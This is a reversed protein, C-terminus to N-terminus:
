HEVYLKEFSIPTDQSRFAAFISEYDSSLGNLIYLTLDEDIVPIDILILEDAAIKVDNLFELVLRSGQSRILREQLRLIWSRSPKAFVTDDDDDDDEEEEEEIIPVRERKSDDLLIGDHSINMELCRSVSLTIHFPFRVNYNWSCFGKLNPLDSLKLYQLRSFTIENEEDIIGGHDDDCAVIEIMRQCNQVKMKVLNIFSKAVSYTILHKMGNCNAVELEVINSFSIASSVINKLRPCDEVQLTELNPFVPGGFHSNGKWVHKLKQMMAIKLTKLHTLQTWGLHVEGDLSGEQIFIEEINGYLVYLTELNHCKKEFLFFVQKYTPIGLHHHQQQLCSSEAALMELKDCRYVLFETLSPWKSTHMGPYFSSLQPLNYLCVDKASPFVFKPMTAEEVGVEEGIIEELTECHHIWLTQLKKLNRNRAMYAPFVNKLNRCNRIYVECLNRCSFMESHTPALLSDSFVAQLSDCNRIDLVKVNSDLRQLICPELIHILSQCADVQIETLKCFSNPDLQTHWITRLKHLGEIVLKELSPFGVKEDFLYHLADDRINKSMRGHIFPGLKTCDKIDLSNLSSFKLYTASSCFTELNALTNLELSELNAFINNDINEEIGNYEETSIIEVMNQCRCIRLKKLQVFNKAMSSSSLFTLGACGDVILNTLNEVLKPFAVQEKHSFFGLSSVIGDTQILEKFRTINRNNNSFFCALKPLSEMTLSRLQLFEIRDINVQAEFNEENEDVVIEKMNNCDVVKIEQLQLFHLATSFSFLNKLKPCKEVQIITLHKFSGRPLEGSCVSELSVLNCLFLAELVPFAINSSSWCNVIQLIEPNNQVHLNILRPFGDMDLQYVVDNVGELVDLYLDESKKMLTQLGQDLQNTQSLKLKLSKPTLNPGSGMWVEGVISIKFYVLKESFCNIPLQSADKFNVYLTTLKSLHKLESLSANCRENDNSVQEIEWNIFNNDMRLIELRTLRSIVNPHIVELEPCGNVDLLRLRTLQSLEKPLLKFKSHVLSLIELSRLEGVMAISRLECDDLCLTQLNTLFLISPPLSPICTCTLDLVKLERVEKFFNHPISLSKQAAYLKFLQLKPCELQEPLKPINIWHFSLLTCKELFEKNPWEKFEDGDILSLFHQDRSAIKRAIDRTLDHMTAFDNPSTDLLLCSDKLKDVLSYLRSREEEMTNIGQFLSFGLGKAYEFLDEVYNYGGVMGCILFLSQVEEGELQNYSWEIGSYAKEQMEKGECMKQLRLADKWSHSSKGKLAKALTVVLIPLGSCRKAIQLAIDRIDPDKVADGVINEFLSWTEKEDLVELRFEKQTGIESSLVDRKRSTLLVKCIGFPLGLTELDLMEWVDDLIVLITKNRIYDSLLRARGAITLNEDIEVGFKEAIERQIRKLDPNHRVEVKAVNDFLKEEEARRGIEKVLTTKGVGAMGFVGIMHINSDTLEKIIQTAFSVRSEFALYGATTWVDKPPSAYSVGSPFDGGQRIEVVVQAIKAAKRSPRYRSSILSPCLGLLSKNKKWQNEDKLFENAEGIMEDVKKMWREVDAEMKHGKRLAEDVSHQVRGKADVLNDVESKLNEVNSKLNIVYGVQRVVPQLTYDVIKEVTRKVIIPLFDM